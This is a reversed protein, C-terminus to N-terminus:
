PQLLCLHGKEQKVLYVICMEKSTPSEYCVSLEYTAEKHTTYKPASLSASTFYKLAHADTSFEQRTECFLTPWQNVDHAKGIQTVKAVFSKEDAESLALSSLLLLCGLLMRM